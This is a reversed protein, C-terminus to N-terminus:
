GLVIPVLVMVFFVIVVFGAVDLVVGHRMMATIPVYGSSYVIANPATSIPMMFGMSAGITAGLAPQLPNVGAAQAVAIAVPVIMNASATNSTLESLVIASATFMLTLSLTTQAPLWVTLGQGMAGALGTTFALEGMALGGGYLLVIGWDINAAEDWTLTFRRAAWNVPLVFLLLAGLMAAIGEPVSAAYARSFSTGDAGVIALVGPAIWLAVTVGFAVLVNRQGRSLTGLKRLEERVLAAGGDAIRVGKVSASWFYLALFAFLVGVIPVGISMWEFFTIRVGVIRELLGIGILNPPTGVPTAIGGISAAFTTMLMLPIAFRKMVQGSTAPDLAAVHAIISLGIPFMMATTATNSIWMSLATAVAGYVLLIRGPNSGVLRSALATYAIRRDLGHVFMAEALIFGGIFLFIIPDAFPALATRAPVVRFVVALVPGLVATASMPLAETIWLVVVMGLIAGLRHAEPSLSPFPCALLVVLTLPALILGATQRRRNFRSEAASYAEEVSPRADPSSRL